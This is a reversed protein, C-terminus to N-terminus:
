LAPANVGPIPVPFISNESVESRLLQEVRQILDQESAALDHQEGPDSALNYVEWPGPERTKL